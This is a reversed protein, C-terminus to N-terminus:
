SSFQHRRTIRWWHYENVLQVATLSPRGLVTQLDDLEIGLWACRTRTSDLDAQLAGLFTMYAADSDGRGHDDIMPRDWPAFFAPRMAFLCKSVAVAKFNPISVSGHGVGDKLDLYVRAACRLQEETADVLRQDHDPLHAAHVAYWNHLREHLLETHPVRAKFRNILLLLASRHEPLSLDPDGDTSKQFKALYQNYDTEAAYKDGAAALHGLWPTRAQGADWCLEDALKILLERNEVREVWDPPIGEVGLAAGLIAGAVSATSDSDGSINAAGAVAAGFDDPFRLACYLGIGLDEEAVWGKGDGDATEEGVQGIQGIATYSEEAEAALRVAADVVDLTEAIGRSAAVDTRSWAVLHERTRATAEPLPLGGVLFAILLALCGSSADSTPHGHTLIAARAAAEFAAEGLGALGIPSVRMVGGCGKNEPNVRGRPRGPKRDGLATMTATGPGRGIHEGSEYWEMYRVFIATSLAEQAAADLVAGPTWGSVRRWDLVGRATAVSMQGDDTYSGAPLGPRPLLDIIGNPPHAKLIEARTMFEAAAGFADGICLGLLCGRYRSRRPDALPVARTISSQEM